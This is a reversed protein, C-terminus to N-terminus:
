SMSKIQVQPTRERFDYKFNSRFRVKPNSRIFDGQKLIQKHILVKILKLGCFLKSSDWNWIVHM